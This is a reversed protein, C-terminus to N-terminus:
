TSRMLALKTEHELLSGVEKAIRRLDGTLDQTGNLHITPSISIHFGGGSVSTPGATTADGGSSKGLGQPTYPKDIGAIISSVSKTAGAQSAAAAIAGANVATYSAQSSTKFGTTKVSARSVSTRVSGSSSSSTGSEGPVKGMTSAPQIHFPEDDAGGTGTGGHGLGFRAANAIIWSDDGFVDAALGKEHWSTGPPAMAPADKDANHNDHVWVVGNWIRDAPKTKEKLDPRPSYRSRFSREQQESSRKADGINLKKNEQLMRRLPEALRPELQALKAENAKSIGSDGGIGWKDTKPTADGGIMNAMQGVGYSAVATGPHGQLSIMTSYLGSLASDFMEMTKAATRLNREFTAFAGENRAAFKEEAKLREGTTKEHQVAYTGEIGMTRRNEEQSPDYMGEGGTKRQFQVNQMAYQIVMDQMDQPVGMSNLRQRTNSGPQLAGKLAEPNTLGARRVLDQIVQMGGKQTGGIGYMGTGGMMFMRNAVDPSAMTSLMKTVDGSGYSFGSIARIAEVSSAQNAANLGTSAQMGLLDNIAAGGGLLYHSTLPARLQSSVQQPSMGYMASLQTNM